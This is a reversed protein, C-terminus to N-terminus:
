PWTACDSRGFPSGVGPETLSQVGPVAVDTNDADEASFLLAFERSSTFETGDQIPAIATLEVETWTGYEQAYVVCVEASGAGDTWLVQSQTDTIDAEEVNECPLPVIAAVNGAELAGSSNFDEGVDLSNNEIITDEDDCVYYPTGRAWIEGFTPDIIVQWFGKGYRLSRLELQLQENVVPVGGVDTLTINWPMGYRTDTIEYITNGTGIAFNRAQQAVTIQASGSLSFDPASVDIVVGNTETTTSGATFFARAVGQSDTQVSPTPPIGNSPDQAITFTVTQNKVPNSNADYLKATIPTQEGVGITTPFVSVNLVTATDAVFEIALNTSPGDPLSVGNRELATAIITTAGASIADITVSAFGDVTNAQVPEALGNLEGRNTVFEIVSTDEVAVGNESWEVTLVQSDPELGVETNAAPSVFTFKNDTVTVSLSATEGLADATISDVAAPTNDAVVVFSGDGNAGSVVSSIPLLSNVDAITNSNASTLSILTNPIGEGAGDLLLLSYTGSEGLPLGSPGTLLLQTGQITINISSSVDGVQANVTIVRNSLDGVSAVVAQAIGAENTIGSELPIISIIQESSFAVTKGSMVNNTDDRVYATLTVFNDGNQDSLLIPSSVILQISGVSSDGASGCNGAFSGGSCGDGGGSCASLILAALLASFLRIKNM